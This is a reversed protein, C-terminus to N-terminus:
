FKIKSQNKIFREQLRAICKLYIEKDHKAKHRINFFDEYIPKNIHENQTKVCDEYYKIANLIETGVEHIKLNNTGM